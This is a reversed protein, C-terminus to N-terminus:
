DYNYFIPMRILTTATTLMCYVFSVGGDPIDVTLLRQCALATSNAYQFQNTVPTYSSAAPNFSLFQTGANRNIILRDYDGNGYSKYKSYATGTTFTETTQLPVYTSWANAALSYSYVTATNAARPVILRIPDWGPLHYMDGDAGLAAPMAAIAAGTPTTTNWANSTINYRYVPTAANGILWIHNYYFGADNVNIASLLPSVTLTTTTAAANSTLVVVKPLAPTGFNLITGASLGVNLASVTITTSSPAASATALITDVNPVSSLWNSYLQAPREIRAVTGFTAPLPLAVSLAATWANSAINYRFFSPAGTGSSIFLWVSGYVVGDRQEGVTDDYIMTTAAGFTGSPPSALQQWVNGWTCYRWFSTASFIYYIYRYNDTCCTVGAATAVNGVLLEWLPLDLTRVLNNVVPM